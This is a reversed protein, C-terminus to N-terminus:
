INLHLGAQAVHFVIKVLGGGLVCVFVHLFVFFYLFWFSIPISGRNPLGGSSWLAPVVQRGRCVTKNQIRLAVAGLHERILKGQVHM